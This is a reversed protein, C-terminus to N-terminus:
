GARFQAMWYDFSDAFMTQDHKLNRYDMIVGNKVQMYTWEPVEEITDLEVKAAHAAGFLIPRTSAFLFSGNTTTGTWLPSGKLRALHMVTPDDTTYWAIAANGHLLMLDDLPDDNAAILQFIAESDVQAIRKVGLMKFIDAHNGIHGNHVGVVRPVVIPHNNDNNEPDGLTAYRTHLLATRTFRPVQALSHKVFESAAVPAKAYFLERESGNQESWVAGTADRGRDQLRVLLQKALERSDIGRHDKTCISFGGIGCM